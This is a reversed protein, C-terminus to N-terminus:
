KRSGKCTGLANTNYCGTTAAAAVAHPSCSCPAGGKPVCQVGTQGNLTQIEKCEYGTSCDADSKCITGCFAGDAGLDVCVGGTSAGEPRCLDDDTCPSCLALAWPICIYVLDPLAGTLQSCEWGAEPCEETCGVTCVKGGDAQVCYGSICETGSNCPWGFGGEIPAADVQNDATDASDFAVDWTEPEVSTESADSPGVFEAVVDPDVNQDGLVDIGGGEGDPKVIQSGTGGGCSGFTTFCVAVLLLSIPARGGSHCSKCCVIKHQESV